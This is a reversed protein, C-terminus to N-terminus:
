SFVREIKIKGHDAGKNANKRMIAVLEGGGVLKFHRAGCETQNLNEPLEEWSPQYGHRINDVLFGKIEVECMNPLAAKLSIVKDRVVDRFTKEKSALKGSSLANETKFSGSAVRRLSKLHGGPGLSKCLDAALSRIYTGSSCKVEMSVEPLDASLIRISDVHVKRKQLGVKVNKRALKYARTGKYKVASFVPPVQEIDGVFDQAKEQIYEPKLDSVSSTRVVRGTPDLTDTEVGLGMTAIYVKSEAMIFQSLKTGQGLLIILLGTAFPDLTGAHGFKRVGLGCFISKVKRVVDYSTEDKEKDILLIGDLPHGM